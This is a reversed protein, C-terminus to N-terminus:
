SRTWEDQAGSRAQSIRSFVLSAILLTAAILAFALSWLRIPTLWPSVMATPAPPGQVSAVPAGETAQGPAQQAAAPAQQAAAPPPPAAAPKAPRAPAAPANAIKPAADAPQASVADPRAAAGPEASRAAEASELTARTTLHMAGAGDPLSGSADYGTQMADVSFLVVCLVAAVAGLARTLPILRRFSRTPRAVAIPITFSRPPLYVPLARLLERVSRLDALENSCVVCQEVHGDLFTREDSEARDDLLASLQETSAHDARGVERM